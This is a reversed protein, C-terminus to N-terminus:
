NIETYKVELKVSNDLLKIIISKLSELEDKRLCKCIEDSLQVLTHAKTNLKSETPLSGTVGVANKNENMIRNVNLFTIKTYKYCAVAVLPPM